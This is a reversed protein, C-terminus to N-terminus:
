ANESLRNLALCPNLHPESQGPLFNCGEGTIPGPGLIKYAFDLQTADGEPPSKLM